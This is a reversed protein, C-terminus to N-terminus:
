DQRRKKLFRLPSKMKGLIILVIITGIILIPIIVLPNIYIYAGSYLYTVKKLSDQGSIRVSNISVPWSTNVPYLEVTIYRRSEPLIKLSSTNIVGKYVLQDWLDRVEITGYPTLHINGENQFLLEVKKPHTFSFLAPLAAKVLSLNFREGGSKRLLILSSVSPAVSTQAADLGGVKAVIAAYHGGPSLDERNKISVKVTREENGRLSVSTTELTLFSSLSYSYGGATDKGLFGVGGFENQQKFDIPYLELTVIELSSNHLTLKITKEEDPQELTIDTFAPSVTLAGSSQQAHVPSPGRYLSALLCIIISLFIKSYM